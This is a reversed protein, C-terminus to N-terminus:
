PNPVDLFSLCESCVQYEKHQYREIMGKRERKQSIQNGEKEKRDGEDKL